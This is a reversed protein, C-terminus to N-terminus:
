DLVIWAVCKLVLYGDNTVSIKKGDLEVHYCILNRREGSEPYQWYSVIIHEKDDGFVYPCTLKYVLKDAKYWPSSLANLYLYERNEIEFRMMPSHFITEDVKETQLISWQYLNINVCPPDEDYGIGKIKDNGFVDQFSLSLSYTHLTVGGRLASKDDLENSIKNCGYILTLLALLGILELTKM